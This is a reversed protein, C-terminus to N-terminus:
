HDNMLSLGPAVRYKATQEPDKQQIPKVFCSYIAITVKTILLKFAFLRRLVVTIFQM